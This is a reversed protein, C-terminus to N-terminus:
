VRIKRNWNCMNHKKRNYLAEYKRIGCRRIPNEKKEGNTISWSKACNAREVNEITPRAATPAALEM